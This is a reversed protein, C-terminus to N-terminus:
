ASAAPRKGLQLLLHGVSLADRQAMAFPLVVETDGTVAARFELRTGRLTVTAVDDRGCKLDPAGDRGDRGLAFLEVGLASQEARTMAVKLGVCAGPRPEAWATVGADDFTLRTIRM